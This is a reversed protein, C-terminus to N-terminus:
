FEENESDAEAYEVLENVKVAILEAFTGYNNQYPKIKVKVLSGNGVLVDLPNNEADVLKPAENVRTGVQVKRSFSFAPEDYKPQGTRDRVQSIKKESQM